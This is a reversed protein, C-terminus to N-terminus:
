FFNRTASSDRSEWQYLCGSNLLMVLLHYLLPIALIPALHGGQCSFFQWFNPFLPSFILFFHLFILFFHLFISFFLFFWSSFALIPFTRKSQREQCIPSTVNRHYLIWLLLKLLISQNSLLKSNFWLNKCYTASRYWSLNCPQVFSVPNELLVCIKCWFVKM